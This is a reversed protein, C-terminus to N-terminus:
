YRVCKAAAYEHHSLQGWRKATMEMVGGMRQCAAESQHFREMAIVRKNEREYKQDETMTACASLLLASLTTLAISIRM